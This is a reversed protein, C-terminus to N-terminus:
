RKCYPVFPTFTLNKKASRKPPYESISIVPNERELWEENLLVADPDQRVTQNIEKNTKEKLLRGNGHLGVSAM